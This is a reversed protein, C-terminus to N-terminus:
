QSGVKLTEQQLSRSLKQNRRFKRNVREICEVVRPAAWGDELVETLVRDVGVEVEVEEVEVEVEVVEVGEVEVVEVEVLEVEVELEVATDM